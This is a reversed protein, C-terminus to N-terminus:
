LPLREKRPVPVTYEDAWRGQNLWTAPHPIYKGNDKIWDPSRMASRVAALIRDISPKDKAALWAKYAAKKGIKRPYVQWLQEFEGKESEKGEKSLLSPLSSPVPVPSPSTTLPNSPPEFPTVEFYDAVSPYYAIFDHILSSNHLTRLHSAAGKDMNKGNGQYQYMKKVWVQEFEHDYYALCPTRLGKLAGEFAMGINVEHQMMVSPLYYLGCYHSHPNTILYLFLLKEFHSLAKVKPDTWLECCITRYM